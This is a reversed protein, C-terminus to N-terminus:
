RGRECWRGLSAGRHSGLWAVEGAEVNAGLDVAQTFFAIRHDQRVIVLLRFDLVEGIKDTVTQLQAALGGFRAGIDDGKAAHLEHGIGGLDEARLLDDDQRVHVRPAAKFVGARWVLEAGEALRVGIVDRQGVDVTRGLHLRQGVHDDGAGAGLRDKGLDRRVLLDDEAGVAVEAAIEVALEPAVHQEPRADADDVLREAFGLQELQLRLVGSRRHRRVRFARRVDDVMRVIDARGAADQLEGLGERAVLQDDRGLRVDDVLHFLRQRVLGEDTGGARVAVAVAVDAGVHREVRQLLEVHRQAVQM